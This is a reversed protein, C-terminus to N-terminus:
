HIASAIIISLGIVVSGIIVAVATNQDKEIEHRVSFPALKTFIWFALGFCAMGILAYVITSVVQAGQVGDFLDM